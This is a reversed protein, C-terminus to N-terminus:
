VMVASSNFFILAKIVGFVQKAVKLIGVATVNSSFPNITANSSTRSGPLKPVIIRKHSQNPILVKNQESSDTSTYLGFTTCAVIPEILRTLTTYPLRSFNNDSVFNGTSPVKISPFFM